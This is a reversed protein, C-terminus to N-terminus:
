AGSILEALDAEDISEVEILRTAVRDLGARHEVLLETARTQAEAVLRHVERDV